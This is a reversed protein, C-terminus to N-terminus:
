IETSDEIVDDVINIEKRILDCIMTNISNYEPHNKVYKKMIERWGKPVRLRIDDVKEKLQADNKKIAKQTSKYVGSASKLTPDKKRAM